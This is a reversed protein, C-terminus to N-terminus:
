RNYSYSNIGYDLELELRINAINLWTLLKLSFYGILMGFTNLFVDDVDATGRVTYYQTLEIASIWSIFLFLLLPLKNLRKDLIGLWGFPIFVLINGLINVMFRESFFQHYNLFYKISQFPNLQLFGYEPHRGCGYFMMYVLFITYFSILVAYHRKM